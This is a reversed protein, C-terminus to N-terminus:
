RVSRPFRNNVINNFTDGWAYSFGVSAEYDYSTPMSVRGLLIDEDSLSDKSLYLQDNVLSASASLNLSLGRLVRYSIDGSASFSYFSTQHLYQAAELGLGANGWQERANYQVAVRHQPVTEALQGFVTETQYDSYEVGLSYHAIFQRRTAEVYPYYNWEVAPAMSFRLRQNNRVSNNGGGDVGVSVHDSVSRVVLFSTSWNDVDDRYVSGDSLEFRNRRFSGMTFVNVKWDETTRSASFTARMNRRARREEGRMSGNMNLRYYWYNWRDVGQAEPPAARSPQSRVDDERLRVELESGLGAAVAYRVLGLRLTHTIGDLTEQEVDTGRSTYVLQDVVDALEQQGVFDLQYRVGGGGASTSTFIVHVHADARERVWDVLQIETRFHASNCHRRTQCDLYVRVSGDILADGRGLSYQGTAASAWFAVMFLALCCSSLAPRLINMYCVVTSKILTEDPFPGRGVM